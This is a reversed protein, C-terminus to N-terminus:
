DVAGLERVEVARAQQDNAASRHAQIADFEGLRRELERVRASLIQNAWHVEAAAASFGYSTLWYLAQLAAQPVPAAERLWKRMTAPHVDVAACAPAFGLEDIFVRLQGAGGLKPAKLM